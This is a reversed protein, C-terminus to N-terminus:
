KSSDYKENRCVGNVSAGDRITAVIRSPQFSFNTWLLNVLWAFLDDGTLSKELM